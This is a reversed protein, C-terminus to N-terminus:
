VVTRTVRSSVACLLEYSITGAHKALEDVPPGDWGFLVAHDGPRVLDDDGLDVMIQDMTVTGAQRFFRGGISVRSRNSLMRHYGDAYGAAVTAIRRKSPATWTRNYSVTAGAEVEKVFIVKARLQMVPKLDAGSPTGDDPRYGYLMIGPRVMDLVTEPNCLIAGSNAVHKCIRRRARHEFETCLDRFTEFQQRTFSDQSTSQAFHTYVGELRLSPSEEVATLLSFAAAPAIGLRGMGTDIKVHIGLTRNESGAVAEAARLTDFDCITAQVDHRLYFPIHSPPPSCFALVSAGGSISQSTRLRIAEDINAVGFDRVGLSELTKSVHNAGHGYANAKVIGMVRCTEGTRERVRRYNHALNGTSVLAEALHEEPGEGPHESTRTDTTLSATPPLSSLHRGPSAPRIKGTFFM